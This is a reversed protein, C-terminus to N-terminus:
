DQHASRVTTGSTFILMAMDLPDNLRENDEARFGPMRSVRHQLEKDLLSTAVPAGDKSGTPLASVVKESLVDHLGGDVLFLCASSTKICHLLADGRLSTNIFAPRAGLSWIAFWLFIFLPNNGCDLAVIDDKRIGHEQKLWAAYKLVIDYTDKYTWEQCKLPKLQDQTYDKPIHPPIAIFAKNALKSSLAHEELKYFMNGRGAKFEKVASMMSTIYATLLDLDASFGTRANLYALVAAAGPM